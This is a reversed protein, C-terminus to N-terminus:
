LKLPGPQRWIRDQLQRDFLFGHATLAAEIETTHMRAATNPEYNVMQVGWKSFNFNTLFSSECGECDVSIWDVQTFGHDELLTDLPIGPLKVRKVQGLADCKRLIDLYAPSYFEIIGGAQACFPGTMEAYTYDGRTGTVLAFIANKRAKRAKLYDGYNPEICLGKWGMLEFPYSNSNSIGDFCGFEVFTGNLDQKQMLENFLYVSVDNGDQRNRFDPPFGPRSRADSLQHQVSV